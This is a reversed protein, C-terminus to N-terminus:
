CMGPKISINTFPMRLSSGSSGSPQPSEVNAPETPPRKAPPPEEDHELRQTPEDRRKDGVLEEPGNKIQFVGPGQLTTPVIIPLRSHKLGAYQHPLQEFDEHEDESKESVNMITPSHQDHKVPIITALPPMTAGQQQMSAPVVISQLHPNTAAAMQVLQPTAGGTVSFRPALVATGSPTVFLGTGSYPVNPGQPLAVGPLHMGSPVGTVTYTATHPIVNRRESEQCTQVFDPNDSHRRDRKNSEIAVQLEKPDSLQEM